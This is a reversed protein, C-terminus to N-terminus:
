LRSSPLYDISEQKENLYNILFDISHTLKDLTNITQRLKNNWVEKKNIKSTEEVQKLQYYEVIKSKRKM